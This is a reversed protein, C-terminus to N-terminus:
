SKILLQDPAHTVFFRDIRGPAVFCRQLQVQTGEGVDFLWYSNLLRPSLSSRSAHSLGGRSTLSAHSQRSVPRADHQRLPETHTDLTLSAEGDHTDRAADAEVCHTYRPM